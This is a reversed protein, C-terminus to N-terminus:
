VENKGRGLKLCESCYGTYDRTTGFCGLSKCMKVGEKLNSSPAYVENM